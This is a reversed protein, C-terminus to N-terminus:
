VARESPFMGGFSEEIEEYSFRYHMLVAYRKGCIDCQRVERVVLENGNYSRDEISVSIEKDDHGDSMGCPCRAYRAYRM